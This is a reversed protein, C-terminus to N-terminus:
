ICHSGRPGCMQQNITMAGGSGTSSLGTLASAQSDLISTYAELGPGAHGQVHNVRLQSELELGMSPNGMPYQAFDAPGVGHDSCARSLPQSYPDTLGSTWLGPHDPQTQMQQVPASPYRIVKSPMVPVKVVLADQNAPDSSRRGAPGQGLLEQLNYSTPDDFNSLPDSATRVGALEKSSSLMEMPGIDGQTAYQVFPSSPGDALLPDNQYMIPTWAADGTDDMIGCAPGNLPASLMDPITSYASASNLMVGGNLDQEKNWLPPLLSTQFNESLCPILSGDDEGTSASIMARDMSSQQEVSNASLAYGGCNSMKMASRVSRSPKKCTGFDAGKSVMRLAEIVQEMVLKDLFPLLRAYGNPEFNTHAKSGRLKLGMIDHAKAADVAEKFGGLYLQKKNYWIHSEWKKTRRRLLLPPV